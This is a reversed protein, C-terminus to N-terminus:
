DASGTIVLDCRQVLEQLMAPKASVAPNSKRHRVIEKIRFRQQLQGVLEETLHNFNPKTNDLIGVVLGDLSELPASREVRNGSPIGIPAVVLVQRM